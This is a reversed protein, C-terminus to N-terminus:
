RVNKYLEAAFGNITEKKGTRKVDVKFTTVVDDPKRAEHKAMESQAEAM